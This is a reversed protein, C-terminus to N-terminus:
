CPAGPRFHSFASAPWPADDSFRPGCGPVLEGIKTIRVAAAAALALLTPESGPPASLLLQYDEGGRLAHDLARASRDPTPLSRRDIRAGCRSAACLRPLDVALGDSLDMAARVVRARALTRALEVPPHPRRLAALASASPATERWGAGALGLTGTVWLADGVQGDGRRWPRGLAAGGMTVSAVVPGPSGTTDGGILRVGWRAAAEGFGRAFSAVWAPRHDPLSLALTAWRPEAGMAIVDSVNVAVAKWGLDEPPTADDFHVGEILLDTTVVTGDDLM